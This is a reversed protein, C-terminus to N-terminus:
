VGLLVIWEDRRSVVEEPRLCLSAEPISDVLTQLLDYDHDVGAFAHRRLEVLDEEAGSLYGFLDLALKIDTSIPARGFLSARRMAIAAAGALADNSHEGEALLLRTAFDEVL